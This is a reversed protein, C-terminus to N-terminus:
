LCISITNFLLETQSFHLSALFSNSMQSIAFFYTACYTSCKLSTFFCLQLCFLKEKAQDKQVTTKEKIGKPLKRMILYNVYLLMSCCINKDSLFGM